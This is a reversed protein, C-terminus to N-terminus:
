FSCGSAIVGALVDVTIPDVECFGHVLVYCIEEEVLAETSRRKIPQDLILTAHLHERDMTLKGSRITENLSRSLLVAICM